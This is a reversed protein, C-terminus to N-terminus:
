CTEIQGLEMDTADVFSATQNICKNVLNKCKQWPTNLHAHWQQLLYLALLEYVFFQKTIEAQKFYPEKSSVSFFNMTKDMHEKWNNNSSWPWDVIGPPCQGDDALFQCEELIKCMYPGAYQMGAPMHFYKILATTEQEWDKNVVDQIELNNDDELLWADGEQGPKGPLGLAATHVLPHMHAMSEVASDPLIYGPFEGASYQLTCIPIALPIWQWRHKIQQDLMKATKSSATGAVISGPSQPEVPMVCHFCLNLQNDWFYWAHMWLQVVGAKSAQEEEVEEADLMSEEPEPTNPQPQMQQGLLYQSAPPTLPLSPSPPPPPPNGTALLHPTSM